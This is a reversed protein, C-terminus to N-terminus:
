LLLNNSHNHGPAHHGQSDEKPVTQHGQAFSFHLWSVHYIKGLFGSVPYPLKLYRQTTNTLVAPGTMYIPNDHWPDGDNGKYRELM